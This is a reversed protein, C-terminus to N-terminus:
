VGLLSLASVTVIVLTIPGSWLLTSGRSSVLLELECEGGLLDAEMKLKEEYSEIFHESDCSKGACLPFDFFQVDLGLGVCAGSASFNMQIMQGGSDEECIQQFDTILSTDRLNCSISTATNNCHQDYEEKELVPFQVEFADLERLDNVEASCATSIDLSRHQEVIHSSRFFSNIGTAISSTGSVAHRLLLLAAVGVHMM